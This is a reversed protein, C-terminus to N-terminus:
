CANFVVPLWQTYDATFPDGNLIPYSLSKGDLAYIYPPAPTREILGAELMEGILSLSDKNWGAWLIVYPNAGARAEHRGKYEYHLSDLLNELEAYSTGKHTQIYELIRAKIEERSSRM